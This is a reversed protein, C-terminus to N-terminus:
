KFINKNLNPNDPIFYTSSYPQTDYKGSLELTRQAMSSFQSLLECYLKIEKKKLDTHIDRLFSKTTLINSLKEIHYPKAYTNLFSTLYSFGINSISVKTVDYGSYLFMSKLLEGNLNLTGEM